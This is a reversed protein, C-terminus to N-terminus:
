FNHRLYVLGADRGAARGYVAMRDLDIQDGTTKIIGAGSPLLVAPYPELTPALYSVAFPVLLFASLLTTYLM